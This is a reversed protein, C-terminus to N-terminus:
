QLSHANLCAESDQCWLEPMECVVLLPCQAVASPVAATRCVNNGGGSCDLYEATSPHLQMMMRLKLRGHMVLDEVWGLGVRWGM